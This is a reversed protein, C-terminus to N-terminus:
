GTELTSDSEPLMDPPLASSVSNGAADIVGLRELRARAVALRTSALAMLRREWEQRDEARDLDLDDFPASPIPAPETSPDSV